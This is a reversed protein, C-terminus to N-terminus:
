KNGSIGNIHILSCEKVKYQPCSPKIGNIFNRMLFGIVKKGSSEHSFYRYQKQLSIWIKKSLKFHECLLGAWFYRPLSIWTMFDVYRQITKM